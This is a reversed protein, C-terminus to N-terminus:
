QEPKAYRTATWRDSVGTIKHDKYGLERMAVRIRSDPLPANAGKEHVLWLGRCPMQAHAAVAAQLDAITRVMTVLVVAAVPQTTTTGQLAQSLTEDTVDGLVFARQSASIGLKAALSPPPTQIKKLWKNALVEGLHLSVTDGETSEFMLAGSQVRPAAMGTILFRRRLAGRLVLEQSELFARVLRREEGLECLVQVEDGM